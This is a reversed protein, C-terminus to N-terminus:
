VLDRIMLKKMKVLAAMAKEARAPDTVIERWITPVIQWSVGFKDKLWGCQEASPDASLNEWLKDIEEQTDCNVTLSFAPTFTYDHQGAGEMLVFEQGNLTFNCHMVSKKDEDHAIFNIKSNKFLSMYFQIAEEGQGFLDQVFLFAPAIGQKKDSLMIQWNVGFKDAVWGYKQSWPYKDLGMHVKGDQSLTQWLRDVEKESERWVFFSLSPTFQFHPGGNLGLIRLGELEFEVTMVSGEKQGSVKAGAKGYRAVKGLKSNKFLSTYFQAAEESQNNFWLCPSINQM